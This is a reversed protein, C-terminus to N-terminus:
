GKMMQTIKIYQVGQRLNIRIHLIMLSVAM